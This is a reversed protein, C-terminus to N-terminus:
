GTRSPAENGEPLKRGFQSRSKVPVFLTQSYWSSVSISKSGMEIAASGRSISLSLRPWPSSEASSWAAPNALRTECIAPTCGRADGANRVCARPFSAPQISTVTKPLHTRASSLAVKQHDYLSVSQLCLRVCGCHQAHHLMRLTQIRRSQEREKKKKHSSNELKRCEPNYAEPNMMALRDDFSLWNTASTNSFPERPGRCELHILLVFMFEVQLEGLAIELSGQSKEFDLKM